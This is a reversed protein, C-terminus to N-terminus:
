FFLIKQLFIFAGKLDKNFDILNVNRNKFRASDPLYFYCLFTNILIFLSQRKLELTTESAFICQGNSVKWLYLRCNKANEYDFM